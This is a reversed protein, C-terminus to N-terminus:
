YRNDAEEHSLIDDYHEDEENVDERDWERKILEQFVEYEELTVHCLKRAFTKDSSDMIKNLRPNQNVEDEDAKKSRLKYLGLRDMFIHRTKIHELSHIFVDSDVVEPVPVRMKDLLYDFKAKIDPLPQFCIEPSSMFLRWANKPTTVFQEIFAVRNRLHKINGFLILEPHKTLLGQLRREGFQCNRWAEINNVVTSSPTNLLKPQGCLIQIFSDNPFGQDHVLTKYLEQWNESSYNGLDPRAEFVTTLQKSDLKPGVTDSTLATIIKAQNETSYHRCIYRGVLIARKFM